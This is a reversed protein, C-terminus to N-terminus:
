VPPFLFHSMLNACNFQQSLMPEPYCEFALKIVETNSTNFSHGLSFCTTKLLIKLEVHNRVLDKSGKYKNLVSKGKPSKCDESSDQQLSLDESINRQTMPYTPKNQINRFLMGCSRIKLVAATLINFRANKAELSLNTRLSDPTEFSELYLVGFM